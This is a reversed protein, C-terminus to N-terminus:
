TKSWNIKIKLPFNEKKKQSEIIGEDSVCELLHYSLFANAITLSSPKVKQFSSSKDNPDAYCFFHLIISTCLSINALLSIQFKKVDVFRKGFFNTERM